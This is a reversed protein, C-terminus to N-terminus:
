QGSKRKAMKLADKYNLKDFIDLKGGVTADYIKRGSRNYAYDSLHYSLESGKLDALHWENGSFYDPDFHNPDAGKMKQKEHPKGTQVFNHDVGVLFVRKFGMYYALQLAIFTVTVGEYIQQHIDTSFPWSIGGATNLRYIHPMKAIVNKAANKALFVPIGLGEFEQKSQEIVLSNVSVIYSLDLKVRKFILFIKNMGITHFGNLLELDMKNLSPGNGIIFCDEGHHCNKFKRLRKGETYFWPMDKIQRWINLFPM